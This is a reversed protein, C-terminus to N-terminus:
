AVEDPCWCFHLKHPDAKDAIARLANMETDTLQFSWLQGNQAIRAPTVSKPIVAIDQQVAFKLLVQAPSVQHAKAAQQVCPEDMLSEHM